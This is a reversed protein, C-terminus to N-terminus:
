LPFGIRAGDITGSEDVDHSHHHGKAMRDLVSSLRESDPRNKARVVAFRGDGDDHPQWARLSPTTEIPHTFWCTESTSLMRALIFTAEDFGAHGSVTVKNFQAHGSFTGATTTV